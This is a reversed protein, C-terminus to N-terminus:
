LSGKSKDRYASVLGMGLLVYPINDIAIVIAMDLVVNGTEIRTLGFSALTRFVTAGYLMIVSLIVLMWAPDRTKPWLLIAGFMAFAGFFVSFSIRLVESDM